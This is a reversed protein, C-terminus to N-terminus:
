RNRGIGLLTKVADEASGLSRALIAKALNFNYQANIYQESALAVAEQAQVVEINSVVGAAFRDRSQTLQLAALERARTSAKLAEETSQLDLFASRVDYYVESKMDEAEARRERLDADAEALRGQQRGGEFIPVDV